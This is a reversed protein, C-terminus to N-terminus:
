KYTEKTKVEYHGIKGAQATFSVGFEGFKRGQQVEEILSELRQILDVAKREAQDDARAQIM